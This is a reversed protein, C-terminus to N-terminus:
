SNTQLSELALIIVEQLCAELWHLAAMLLAIIVHSSVFHNAGHIM